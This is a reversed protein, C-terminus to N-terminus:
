ILSLKLFLGKYIPNLRCINGHESLDFIFGKYPLTDIERRRIAPM